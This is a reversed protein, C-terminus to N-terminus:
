KTKEWNNPDEIKLDGSIYKSYSTPKCIKKGFTSFESDKNWTQFAM